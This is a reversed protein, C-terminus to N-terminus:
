FKFKPSSGNSPISGVADKSGGFKSLITQLFMGILPNKGLKGSMLGLMPNAAIAAANEAKAAGGASGRLLAEASQVVRNSFMAAVGDLFEVLKSPNDGQPKILESFMQEYERFREAVDWSMKRVVIFFYVLFAVILLQTLAIFGVLLLM